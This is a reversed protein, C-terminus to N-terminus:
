TLMGRLEGNCVPLVRRPSVAFVSFYVSKRELGIHDNEEAIQQIFSAHRSFILELRIHLSKVINEVDFLMVFFSVMDKNRAIAVNASFSPVSRRRFLDFSELVREVRRDFVLLDELEDGEVLRVNHWTRSRLELVRLRLVPALSILLRHFYQKRMKGKCLWVCPSRLFPISRSFLCIQNRVM